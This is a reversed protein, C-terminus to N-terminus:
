KLPALATELLDDVAGALTEDRAASSEYKDARESFERAYEDFLDGPLWLETVHDFILKAYWVHAFSLSTSYIYERLKAGEKGAAKELYDKATAGTSSKDVLYM